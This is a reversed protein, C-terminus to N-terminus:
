ENTLGIAFGSQQTVNGKDSVGKEEEKEVEIIFIM